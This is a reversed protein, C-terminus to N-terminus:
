ETDDDTDEDEESTDNNDTQNKDDSKDDNDEEIDIDREQGDDSSDPEDNDRSDQSQQRDSDNGARLDQLELLSEQEKDIHQNKKEPARAVSKNIEKQKSMRIEQMTLLEAKEKARQADLEKLKDLDVPLRSFRFKLGHEHQVGSLRGARYYPSFGKTQLENLFHETSTPQITELCKLLNNKVPNRENRKVTKLEDKTLKQRNGKGHEPLSNSLSPYKLKQYEQLQIKVEQFQQKSIRSSRGNPQTGSMAIHLHIHERDKHVTGVYLNNKGRLRIYEQAIDKLMADSVNAKDRSSWSLITHHISVQDSRKFLRQNENSEFEKIYGSISNTRINHKIVFPREYTNDKSQEAVVTPRERLLNNQIYYQYDNNPSNEKFDAMLKAEAVEAELYKIDKETFQIGLSRLTNEFGMSEKERVEADKFIYKFIYRVLQGSGSKRSLNKIIM